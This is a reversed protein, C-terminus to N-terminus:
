TASNPRNVALSIDVWAKSDEVKVLYGIWLTNSSSSTVTQDDSAYMAAGIDDVALSGVAFGWIGNIYLSVEVSGDALDASTVKQQEAAVGTFIDGGAMNVSSTLPVARIYGDTDSVDCVTLSGKYVTHAETGGGFNTFGAMPQSILFLGGPPLITQYQINQTLVAM